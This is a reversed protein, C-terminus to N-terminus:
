CSRDGENEIKREWLLKIKLKIIENNNSIISNLFMDDLFIIDSQERKIQNIKREVTKIYTRPYKQAKSENITILDKNM